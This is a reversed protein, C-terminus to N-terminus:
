GEFEFELIDAEAEFEEALERLFEVYEATEMEATNERVAWKINDKAKKNM